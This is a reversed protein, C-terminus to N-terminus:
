RYSAFSFLYRVGPINQKEILMGFSSSDNGVQRVCIIIFSLLNLVLYNNLHCPLYVTFQTMELDKIM